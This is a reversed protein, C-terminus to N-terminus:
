AKVHKANRGDTEEAEKSTKSQLQPHLETPLAQVLTWTKYEM